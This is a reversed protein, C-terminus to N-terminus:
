CQSTKNGYQSSPSLDESTESKRDEKVKEEVLSVLEKSKFNYDKLKVQKNPYKSSSPTNSTNFKPHVPEWSNHM